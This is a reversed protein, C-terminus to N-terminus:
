GTREAVREMTNGESGAGPSARPRLHLTGESGVSKVRVRGGLGKEEWPLAGKETGRWIEGVERDGTGALWPTVHVRVEDM